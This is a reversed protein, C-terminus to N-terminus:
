IVTNFRKRDEAAIKIQKYPLPKPIVFWAKSSKGLDKEVVHMKQQLTM